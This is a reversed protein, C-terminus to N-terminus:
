GQLLTFPIVRVAGTSVLIDRVQDRTEDSVLALMSGGGGAGTMKAAKAGANRAARILRDLSYCSVELEQLLSHNNNLADALLDEDGNQLAKKASDALKNIEDLVLEYRIKNKDFRKRVGDVMVSTQSSIGTDAILFELSKGVHIIQLPREKQFFVPREFTIVTNDIGSPNGHYLKEIEFVLRNTTDPDFPEGTLLASLARIIACSVAAGSGMRGALPLSSNIRIIIGQSQKQNSEAITIEVVKRLPHSNPLDQINKYIHVAPADLWIEGSSGDLEEISATVRTQSIPIAIAPKGYVVTHEGLLIVKGPASAQSLIKNMPNL